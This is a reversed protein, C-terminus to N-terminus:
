KARNEWFIFAWKIKSYLKLHSSTNENKRYCSTEGGLCNGRTKEGRNEVRTTECKYYTVNGQFLKIDILKSQLFRTHDHNKIKNKYRLASFILQLDPHFIVNHLM